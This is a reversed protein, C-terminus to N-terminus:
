AKPEELDKEEGAKPKAAKLEAAGGKILLQAVETALDVEKGIPLPKGDHEVPSVIVVKM